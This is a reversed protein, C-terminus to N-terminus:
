CKGAKNYFSVIGGSFSYISIHQENQIVSSLIQDSLMLHKWRYCFDATNLKAPQQHTWFITKSLREKEYHPYPVFCFNGGHLRQWCWWPATLPAPPACLASEEETEWPQALHSAPAFWKERLFSLSKFQIAIRLPTMQKKCQHQNLAEGYPQLLILSGALSGLLVYLPIDLQRRLIATTCKVCISRRVIFCKFIFDLLICTTRTVGRCRQDSHKTPM